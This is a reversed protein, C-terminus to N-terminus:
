RPLPASKSAAIAGSIHPDFAKSAALREELDGLHMLLGGLQAELRLRDSEAEELAKRVERKPPANLAKQANALEARLRDESRRLGAIQQELGAREQQATENSQTLESRLQQLDANLREGRTQEELLRQESQKLSEIERELEEKLGELEAQAAETAAVKARLETAQESLRDARRREELLQEETDKASELQRKLELREAQLSQVENRAEELESRAAELKAKVADAEARSEEASAVAVASAKRAGDLQARTEDAEGKAQEYTELAERAAQQLTAERERAVELEERAVKEGSERLALEQSLAECQKEVNERAGALESEQRELLDRLETETARRRRAEEKSTEHTAERADLLERLKAAETWALVLKDRLAALNRESHGCREKHQELVAHADALDQAKDFLMQEAGLRLAHERALRAHIDLEVNIAENPASLEIVRDEDLVLQFSSGPDQVRSAQVAFAMQWRGQGLPAAPALPERHEVEDDTTVALTPAPRESSEVDIRVVLRLMISAGEVPVYEFREVSSPTAGQFAAESGIVADV